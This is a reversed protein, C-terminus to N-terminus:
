EVFLAAPRCGRETIRHCRIEPEKGALSVILQFSSPYAALTLDRASPEPPSPHSHYTATLDLGEERIQRTACLQTEPEM